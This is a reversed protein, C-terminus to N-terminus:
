VSRSGDPQPANVDAHARLLTQLRVADGQMAADAVEDAALALAHLQLLLLGLLGAGVLRKM